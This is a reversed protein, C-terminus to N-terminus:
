EEWYKGPNLIGRPDLVKKIDQMIRLAVPDMARKMFRQKELGIGHEGSIVGGLDLTAEIMEDVAKMARSFNEQDKIDTQISPHINGDGAHGTFHIDFGYERGIAYCRKLLEAIKDRPVTIDESLITPASSYVASFSAKRTLWLKDAEAEDCASRAERAGTDRCIRIVQEIEKEVAQSEGDSQVLMLAGAEVPLGLHSLEEIRRLFWNDVFELKAPIIGAAIISSVADGATEMGDFVALMTKRAPPLPVLRLTIGTIIGLTGESGAFLTALEYGMRNKITRGGLRGIEGNALVVELGLLYQKTVGYKVCYPGGANEAVTGGMTCGAASQPDPPYFLGEEALAIQFDQMIVGPEVEATLTAKNIGIIRNMKTTCLVIGGKVPISGGSVNTGGGRPTVPINNEFALNMIRTVQLTTQPLVVVDPLHSWITTGDYSYTLLDEKDLLVNREGAIEKLKDIQSSELM